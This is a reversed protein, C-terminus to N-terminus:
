VVPKARFATTCLPTNSAPTLKMALGNTMSSNASFIWWMKIQNFNNAQGSVAAVEGPASRRKNRPAALNAIDRARGQSLLRHSMAFCNCRHM